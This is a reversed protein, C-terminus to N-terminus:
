IKRTMVKFLTFLVILVDCALRIHVSNVPDYVDIVQTASLTVHSAHLEAAHLNCNDISWRVSRYTGSFRSLATQM